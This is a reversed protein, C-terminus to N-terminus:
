APKSKKDKESKISKFDDDNEGGVAAQNNELDILDKKFDRIKDSEEEDDNTWEFAKSYKNLMIQDFSVGESCM